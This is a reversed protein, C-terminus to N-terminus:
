HLIEVLHWLDKSRFKLLSLNLVVRNKELWDMGILMDSSGLPLINLDVHTNFENMLIEYKKM